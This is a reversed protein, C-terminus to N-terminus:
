RNKSFVTMTKLASFILEHRPNTGSDKITGDEVTTINQNKFDIIKFSDQGTILLWEVDKDAYSKGISAAKFAKKCGWTKQMLNPMVDYHSSIGNYEGDKRDPNVYLYPVIDSDKGAFAGTMVIHTSALLKEKQLTLIVEGIMKDVDFPHQNFSMSLFYPKIEEGSRNVIWSRFQEMVKEDNTSPASIQDGDFSLIEYKRRQLEDMLAPTTGVASTRYSAPISYFLSFVGGHPDKSVGYHSNFSIGHDRMHSVMPMVEPNMQDKNWEKIVIMVINPNTKYTCGLSDTPYYFRRNDKHDSVKNKVLYFNAPFVEALKPHVNGYHYTFRSIVFCFIIFVIYWNKVPNSFRTQMFRWIMEGRIWVLLGFILMGVSLAIVGADSVLLYSFGKEIFLQSLYSYIHLHYTSFSLADLLVFSNLALILILSWLRSIYYSPMLSVIPYYLLFYVLVNLLGFLGIYTTAFYLSEVGSEPFIFSKLYILGLLSTLPWSLGFFLKRGWSLAFNRRNM